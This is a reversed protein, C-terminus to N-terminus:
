IYVQGKKRQLARLSVNSDSHHGMKKLVQQVHDKLDLEKEWYHSLRGLMWLAGTLRDSYESDTDSLAFETAERGQEAMAIGLLAAGYLNTNAGSMNERMVTYLAKALQPHVALYDSVQNFFMSAALDGSTKSHQVGALDVLDQISVDGLFPLANGINRLVNFVHHTNSNNITKIGARLINLKQSMLGLFRGSAFDTHGIEDIELQHAEDFIKQADLSLDSNEFKRFSYVATCHNRAAISTFILETGEIYFLGDIRKPSFSIPNLVEIAINQTRQSHLESALRAVKEPIEELISGFFSPTCITNLIKVDESIVM